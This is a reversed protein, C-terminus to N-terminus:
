GTTGMAALSETLKRWHGRVEGNAGLVEDYFEATAAYPV